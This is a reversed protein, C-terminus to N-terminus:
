QTRGHATSSHNNWLDRKLEGLEKYVHNVRHGQMLDDLVDSLDVEKQLPYEL